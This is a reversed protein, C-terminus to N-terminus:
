GHVAETVLRVALAAILAGNGTINAKVITKMQLIREEPLLNLGLLRRFHKGAALALLVPCIWGARGALLFAVLVLLAMWALVLGRYLVLTRERGLISPLMGSYPKM